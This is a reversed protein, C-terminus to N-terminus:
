SWQIDAVCVDGQGIATARRDVALMAASLAVAPELTRGELTARQLGVQTLLRRRTEPDVNRSDRHGLLLEALDPVVQIVLPLVVVVEM